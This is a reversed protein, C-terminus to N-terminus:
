RRIRRGPPASAGATGPILAPDAEDRTRLYIGEDKAVALVHGDSPTVTLATVPEAQSV